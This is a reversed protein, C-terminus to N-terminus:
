KPTVHIPDGFPDPTWVLGYQQQHTPLEFALEGAVTQGPTLQGYDLRSNNISTDLAMGGRYRVHDDQGELAFDLPNYSLSDTGNNTLTVHITAFQHGASPPVDSTNDQVFHEWTATVGKYTSIPPATALPEPTATLPVPPAVVPVPAHKTSTTHVGMANHHARRAVTTPLATTPPPATAIQQSASTQSTSAAHVVYSVLLVAFFGLLVRGRRKRKKPPPPALTALPLAAGLATGCTGCFTMGPPNQRGCRGCYM